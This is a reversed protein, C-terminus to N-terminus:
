EKKIALYSFHNTPDIHLDVTTFRDFLKPIEYKKFYHHPLGKERGDLPIFTGPEIEKQNKSPENKSVPMTIWIIGNKKLVRTIENVTNKIGELNNHHIVQVSVVANFYEDDYPLTKMDHITLHASLKNDSLSKITFALGLPSSDLGYTDFGNESFCLVHRGTGCGLDLLKRINKQKFYKIIKDIEPHLERDIFEGKKYINDWVNNM